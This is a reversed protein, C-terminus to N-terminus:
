IPLEEWDGEYWDGEDNLFFAAGYGAPVGIPAVQEARPGKSSLNRLARAALPSLYKAWEASSQVSVGDQTLSDFQNRGVLEPQTPIWRAQWCVAHQVWTVDRASM